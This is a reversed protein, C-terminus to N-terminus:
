KNIETALLQALPEQPNRLEEIQAKVDSYDEGTQRAVKRIITPTVNRQLQVVQKPITGLRPISM